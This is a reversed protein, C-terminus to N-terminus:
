LANDVIHQAEAVIAGLHKEDTFSEAYIKYINV